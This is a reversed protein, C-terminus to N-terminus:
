GLAAARDGRADQLDGGVQFAFGLVGVFCCGVRGPPLEQGADVGAEDAARVPQRQGGREGAGRGGAVVDSGPQRRQGGGSRQGGPVGSALQVPPQEVVAGGGKGRVDGGVVEGGVCVVRDTRWLHGAVGGCSVAAVCADVVGVRSSLVHRM